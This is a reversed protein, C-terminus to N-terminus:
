PNEVKKGTVTIESRNHFLQRARLNGYERALMALGKEVAAEPKKSPLKFTMIMLGGANLRPAFKLIMKVSDVVDMRMDNVILDFAQQGREWFDQALGHFHRLRPASRLPPAMEAPDVATVAIGRDLLVKTWGGPAAGLDLATQKGNLDLGFVELAELLKFEARSIQGEYRAFRRMGGPWASINEFPKSVGMYLLNNKLVASVIQDPNQTELSFLRKRLEESMWRTLDFKSFAYASPDLIRLQISYSTDRLHPYSTQLRAAIKVLARPWHEVLATYDLPFIHRTYIPENKRLTMSVRAFPDPIRLIAVGRDIWKVLRAEPLIALMEQLAADWFDEQATMVFDPM